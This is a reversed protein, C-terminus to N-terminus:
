NKSQTLQQKPLYAVNVPRRNVNQEYERVLVHEPWFSPDIIVNFIEFPVTLKFSTITRMQSYTFKHVNLDVSKGIKSKIYADIEDVSTDFAFRSIFIQKRPPIVRLDGTAACNNGSNILDISNTANCNIIPVANSSDSTKRLITPGRDNVSSTASEPNPPLSPSFSPETLKVKNNIRASKRKPSIQVPSKVSDLSTFDEFMKAYQSIKDCLKNAEEQIESFRSKNAQFFRYFTISIKRCDNCRWALGNDKSLSGAVLGSLGSCKIHCMGNCLWCCIMIEEDNTIGCKKMICTM